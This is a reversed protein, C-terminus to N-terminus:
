FDGSRSALYGVPISACTLLIAPLFCESIPQPVPLLIGRVYNLISIGVYVVLYSLAVSYTSILGTVLTSLIIFSVRLKRVSLGQNRLVRFEMSLEALIRRLALYLVPLYLLAVALSYTTSSSKFEELLSNLVVRLSAQSETLCLFGSRMSPYGTLGEVVVVNTLYNSHTYTLCLCTKTQGVYVEIVEGLILGLNELLEKDFSAALYRCSTKTSSLDLSLLSVLDEIRDVGVAPVRLYKSGLSVDLYGYVVHICRASVPRDSILISFGSAYGLFMESRSGVAVVSFTLSVYILVPPLTALLVVAVLDKRYTSLILIRMVHAFAM